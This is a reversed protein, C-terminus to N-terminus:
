GHPALASWHAGDLLGMALAFSPAGHRATQVAAVMGALTSDMEVGAALLLVDREFPSLGFLQAIREFAPPQDHPPAAVAAVAAPPRSGEGPLMAQLRARLRAFEAALAKQNADLWAPAATDNM